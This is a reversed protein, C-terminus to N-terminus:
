VIKLRSGRLIKYGYVAYSVFPSIALLFQGIVAHRTNVLVLYSLLYMFVLVAAFLVKVVLGMKSQLGSRYQIDKIVDTVAQRAPKSLDM